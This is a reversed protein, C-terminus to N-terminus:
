LDRFITKEFFLYFFRPRTHRGGVVPDPSKDTRLTGPHGRGNVHDVRLLSLRDRDDRM